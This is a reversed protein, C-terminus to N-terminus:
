GVAGAHLLRQAVIKLVVAIPIRTKGHGGTEATDIHVGVGMDHLNSGCLTEAFLLEGRVYYLADVRADLADNGLGVM